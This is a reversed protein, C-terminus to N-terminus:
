ERKSRESKGKEKEEEEKRVVFGSAEFMCALASLFAELCEMGLMGTSISGPLYEHLGVGVDEGKGGGEM